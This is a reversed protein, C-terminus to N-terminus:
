ASSDFVTFLQEIAGADGADHYLSRLRFDAPPDLQKGEYLTEYSTGGLIRCAQTLYLRDFAGDALLTDLLVAGAVMDINGFGEQALAAVLARGEVRTGSGAKLVRVGQDTLTRVRSVDATAGTAIYIKRSSRLLTEPIPVDLSNTVIAVAPQPALGHARRWALLDAFEPKSSVPLADQAVGAALDRIYRGSTVLVDASAALEQFLRWDRPNAIARPVKRTQTEPDPLSIRGDLSAIFSAYVFPRAPTGAPRLSEDLYLSHLPVPGAPGPFLRLIQEQSSKTDMM